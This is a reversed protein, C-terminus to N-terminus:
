IISTLHKLPAHKDLAKQVYDEMRDLLDKLSCDLSQLKDIHIDAIFDNVNIDKWKRYSVSKTSRRPKYDTFM